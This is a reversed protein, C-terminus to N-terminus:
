EAFCDQAAASDGAHRRLNGLKSLAKALEVATERSGPRATHLDRRIGIAERYSPMAEDVRGLDIYQEGLNDLHNCLYLRYEDIEPALAVARRQEAVAKEFAPIARLNERAEDDLYGLANWSLGLGSHYRAQDPQSQVLAEFLELSRRVSALAQGERGAE